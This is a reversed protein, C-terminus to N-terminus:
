ASGMVSRMFLRIAGSSARKRVKKRKIRIKTATNIFLVYKESIMAKEPAM